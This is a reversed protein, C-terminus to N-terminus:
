LWGECGNWMTASGGALQRGDNQELGNFADVQPIQPVQQWCSEINRSQSACNVHLNRKRDPSNERVHQKSFEAIKLSVDDPNLKDSVVCTSWGPVPNIFPFLAERGPNLPQGNTVSGILSMNADGM